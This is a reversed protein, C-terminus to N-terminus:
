IEYCINTIHLNKVGSNTWPTQFFAKFASITASGANTSLHASQPQSAGADTCAVFGLFTSAVKCKMPMTFTFTTANSTGEIKKYYIKEYIKKNTPNLTSPYNKRNIRQYNSSYAKLKESNLPNKRYDKMYNRNCKKCHKSGLNKYDGSCLENNVLPM